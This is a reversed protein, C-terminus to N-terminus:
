LMDHQQCGVGAFVGALATQGVGQGGGPRVTEDQDRCLRGVIQSDQGLGRDPDGSVAFRRGTEVRKAPRKEFGEAEAPATRCLEIRCASWLDLTRLAVPM